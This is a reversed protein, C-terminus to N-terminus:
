LPVDGCMLHGKGDLGNTELIFTCFRNRKGQVKLNFPPAHGRKCKTKNTRENYPEVILPRISNHTIPNDSFSKSTPM